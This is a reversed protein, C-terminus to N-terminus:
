TSPGDYPETLTVLRHVIQGSVERYQYVASPTSSVSLRTSARPANSEARDAKLCTSLFKRYEARGKVNKEKKYGGM